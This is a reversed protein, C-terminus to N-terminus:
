GRNFYKVHNEILACDTDLSIEKKFYVRHLIPHFKSKCNFYM